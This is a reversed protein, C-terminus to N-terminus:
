QQFKGDPLALRRQLHHAQIGSPGRVEWRDFRVEYRDTGIATMSTLDCEIRVKDGYVHQPSKKNNEDTYRLWEKDTRADSMEQVMVYARPFEASSYCDHARVYTWLGTTIGTQYDKPPM